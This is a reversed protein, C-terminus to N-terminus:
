INDSDYFVKETVYRIVYGSKKETKNILNNSLFYEVSMISENYGFATRISTASSIRPNIELLKPGQETLRFQFNTPGVPKFVIALDLIAKKWKEDFVTEATQTFGESSLKRKLALYDLMNSNKDFFASISYEEDDNGVIPQTIYTSGIEDKYKNFSEIDSIKVIGKSGYGRMPKILFPTSLTDFDKSIHTSIAYQTASTEKLKEYFKWKDACLNILEFKNLLLFTGTELLKDKHNNWFIVDDEIGPIVMDVNYKKIIKALAPLYDPESTKPLMEFVDCFTPAVSRTYITTGVLRLEKNHRLSNLIGYGVIGSAGSVLITKMKM